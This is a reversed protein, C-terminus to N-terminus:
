VPTPVQKVFICGVNLDSFYFLCESKSRDEVIKEREKERMFHIVYKYTKCYILTKKFLHISLYLCSLHKFIDIIFNDESFQASIKMTFFFFSHSCWDLIFEMSLSFFWLNWGHMEHIELPMYLLVVQVKTIDNTIWYPKEILM